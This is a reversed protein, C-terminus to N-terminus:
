EFRRADPSCDLVAGRRPPVSTARHNGCALVSRGMLGGDDDTHQNREVGDDKEVLQDQGPARARLTLRQALEDGGPTQNRTLEQALDSRGTGGVRDDPECGEARHEKVRSEDVQRAIQQVEPNETALDLTAEAVAAKQDEVQDAPQGGRCDLNGAVRAGVDRHNTGAAGDRTQEAGERDGVGSSSQTQSFSIPELSSSTISSQYPDDFPDAVSDGEAFDLDGDSVGGVLQFVLGTDTHLVNAGNGFLAYRISDDAWQGQNEVFLAPSLDLLEVAQETTGVVGVALMRRRELPELRLRRSTQPRKM